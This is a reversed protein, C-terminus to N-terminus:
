SAEKRYVQEMEWELDWEQAFRVAEPPLQHWYLRIFGNDLKHHAARCLPIGNDPSWVLELMKPRDGPYRASAIHKLRQKPLLHAPDIPGDCKHRVVDAMWCRGKELVSEYFAHRADKDIKTEGPM